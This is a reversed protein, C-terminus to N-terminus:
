RVKEKRRAAKKSMYVAAGGREFRVEDMLARM